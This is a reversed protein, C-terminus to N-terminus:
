YTKPSEGHHGALRWLKLALYLELRNKFTRQNAGIIEDVRRLRYKLTSPHVFLAKATDKISCDSELYTEMTEILNTGYAHDYEILKSIKAACYRLIEAHDMSGLIAELVGTDGYPILLNDGKINQNLRLSARAQKYAASLKTVPIPQRPYAMPLSSGFGNKQLSSAITSARRYIEAFSLDKDELPWLLCLHGERTIISCGRVSVQSIMYRVISYVLWPDILRIMFLLYAPFVQVGLIGAHRIAEDLSFGGDLLYNAFADNARVGNLENPSQPGASGAYFMLNFVAELVEQWVVSKPMKIIPLLHKDSTALAEKTIKPMYRGEKFALAAVGKEALRIIADNVASPANNFAYGTTLCLEHGRLFQYPDPTSIVTVGWVKRDLGAKGSLVDAKGLCGSELITRVTIGSSRMQSETVAAM